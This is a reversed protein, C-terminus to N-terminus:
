NGPPSRRLECTEINRMYLIHVYTCVYLSVRERLGLQAINLTVAGRSLTLTKKRLERFRCM